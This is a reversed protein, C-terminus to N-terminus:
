YEAAARNPIATAIFYIHEICGMGLQVITCLSPVLMDVCIPIHSSSIPSFHWKSAIPKHKGSLPFMRAVLRSICCAAPTM